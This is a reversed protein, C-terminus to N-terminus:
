ASSCAAPSSSPRKDRYFTLFAPEDKTGYGQLKAGQMTFGGEFDIGDAIDRIKVRRDYSAFRPYSAKEASVNAMVKDSLKGLLMREFYPDTFRVSDVDFNASKVRVEYDHDWEAFTATPKLGAREWTVKGGRGKWLELTPYYTGETNKIVASDGKAMCVLEAKPFHIKPVSDYAFTFSKASSRWQISASEYLVGRSLLNACMAIYDAVNQKRGRQVLEEMGQLWADFETAKRGGTPFAAVAALYDRFHPFAEFRKKQMFNAVEVVRIRQRESYYDGNWVPAFVQETFARGEKKDAAVLMDTVEQLFIARDTSFPKIQAQAAHAAMWLAFALLARMALGGSRALAAKPNVTSSRMRTNLTQPM